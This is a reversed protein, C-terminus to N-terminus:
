RNVYRIFARKGILAFISGLIVYLVPVVQWSTFCKGFILVAQPNFMNWIAVYNAPLFSWLQELERYQEPVTILMAAAVMGVIVALASIGNRFLESLLMVFIGTLVGALVVIGYAILVAEGASLLYSYGTHWLQFAAEFGDMGYLVFAEVFAIMILGFTLLLSVSVGAFNKAWYVTGRGYKSCLILQDTKRTHEETFVSSLCIAMLIIVMLGITYVSELLQWYGEAYKFQVPSELEEECEKWFEREEQTLQWIDWANELRLQKKIYMDQEDAIWEMAETPTMGMTGRVYDFIASYPRAYTQYEETVFYNKVNEPIKEYGQKMEELLEQNIFRGDLEKQYAKGTQFMRYNSDVKVGDAYYSGLLSVGVTFLIVFVMITTSVWVIKRGLIKKIEFKYIIGFNKM